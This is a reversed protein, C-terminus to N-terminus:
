NLFNQVKAGIYRGSPLAADPYGRCIFRLGFAISPSTCVIGLCLM